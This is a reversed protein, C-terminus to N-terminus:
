IIRAQSVRRVKARIARPQVEVSLILTHGPWDVRERLEQMVAASLAANRTRYWPAVRFAVIYLPHEPLYRLQKRVLYVRRLTGIERLRATLRRLIEPELGHSVWADATTVRAREARANRLIGAREESRGHWYGALTKEGRRWFYDRLLVGGAVLADEDQAIAEEMLAVGDADDALLLQRSLDFKARSSGPSRALLARRLALAADAGEGVAEELDALELAKAESLLEASGENRLAALAQRKSRIDEHYKRWSEGIADRWQQDFRSQFRDLSPGLLQAAAEGPQPIVIEAEAGIAGLRDSLSPHTDSFSTERRLALDLWRARDSDSIQELAATGFGSYPAFSPQPVEKAAAHIQPWYREHLFNGVINVNTLAQGTIRPSTLRAAAADAEYENARALPFSIAQFRPVYWQYFARVFRSGWQPREALAAELRSWMLRLRYIWNSARAHGRALHGLEHALVSELQEVTLAQMLPLGLLLYNRYGGFPGFRPVQAVAANFDATIQVEHIRATRLQRRLRELEEFLAPADSRTLVDGKPPSLRVWLARVVMWLFASAVFFLKIGVAKLYIVSFGAVVCLAALATVLAGLFAYGLVAFGFVHARYFGPREKAELELRNVLSEFETRDM